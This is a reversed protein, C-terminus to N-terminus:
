DKLIKKKINKFRLLNLELDNIGNVVKNNNTKIFIPAPILSLKNIKLILTLSVIIISMTM